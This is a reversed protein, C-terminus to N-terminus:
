VSVAEFESLNMLTLAYSVFFQLECWVLDLRRVFKIELFNRSTVLLAVVM